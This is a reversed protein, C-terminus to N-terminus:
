RRLMAQMADVQKRSKELLLRGQLRDEEELFYDSISRHDEATLAADAMPFFISDEQHIHRRLLATYAALHTLVATAAIEDRDAYGRLAREIESIANRCCEHQHRLAGIETDLRGNKKQALMAFLVFEEKVHHFRDAFDRAFCVATEFFESPPWRGKELHNRALSLNELQKVILGHETKLVRIATM